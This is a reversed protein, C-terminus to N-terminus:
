STEGKLHSEIVDAYYAREWEARRKDAGRVGGITSVRLWRRDLAGGMSHAYAPHVPLDHRHLYAFVDVATWRGIPRCAAPGIEGWRSMVMGRIRSEEGRIGSVHRKGFRKAAITFGHDPGHESTAEWGEPHWWRRVGDAPISIEHYDVDYSSLFADRTPFTDPNELGDVRVWVLPLRLGSTALLHALVTSDKGWSTSVYCPGSESFQRITARARDAMEELPLRDALLEDYRVLRDWAAKDAATTRDSHILM